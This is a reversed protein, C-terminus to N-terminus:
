WRVGLKLAPNQRTKPERIKYWAVYLAPLFLLTLLDGRHDRRDHRLGDAGLVGRPCDPDHGPEGGGGDAPDAAASPQHGGGGCGLRCARAEFEDIQTVLIVSNRIIIGALALIGLIAVFGMPTGTPVLALVVGILGLPAVSVVLFLKQVSHLQIMLFTAMLFLM